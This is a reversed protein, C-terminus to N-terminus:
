RSAAAATRTWRTAWSRTRTRARSSCARPARASSRTGRSAIRTPASSGSAKGGNSRCTTTRSSTRSPRTRSGSARDNILVHQAPAHELRRELRLVRAARAAAAAGPRGPVAQRARHGGGPEEPGDHGRRHEEDHGPQADRRLRLGRRHREPDHGLRLRRQPHRRRRGQRRDPPREPRDHHRQAGVVLGDWLCDALDNNVIISKTIVQGCFVFKTEPRTASSGTTRRGADSRDHAAPPREGRRRDRPGPAAAGGRPLNTYTVPSECVDFGPRRAAAPVRVDGEARRVLLHVDRDDRGHDSRARHPDDDGAGGQRDAPRHM